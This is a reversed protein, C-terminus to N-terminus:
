WYFLSLVAVGFPATIVAIYGLFTRTTDTM